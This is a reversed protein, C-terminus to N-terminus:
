DSSCHGGLGWKLLLIMYREFAKHVQELFPQCAELAVDDRNPVFEQGDAGFECHNAAVESTEFGVDRRLGVYHACPEIREAVLNFVGSTLADSANHIDVLKCPSDLSDLHLEPQGGVLLKRDSFM